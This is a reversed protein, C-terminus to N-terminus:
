QSRYDSTDQDQTTKAQRNDLSM